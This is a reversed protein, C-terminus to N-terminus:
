YEIIFAGMPIEEMAILGWMTIDRSCEGILRKKMRRIELRYRRKNNAKILFNTCLDKSCNCLPHCENFKNVKNQTSAARPQLCVMRGTEACIEKTYTSNQLKRNWKYCACKRSTQCGDECACFTTRKSKSVFYTINDNFTVNKTVYAWNKRNYGSDYPNMQDISNRWTLREVVSGTSLNIFPLPERLCPQLHPLKIAFAKHHKTWYEGNLLASLPFVCDIFKMYSM